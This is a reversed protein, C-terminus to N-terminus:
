EEQTSMKPVEIDDVTMGVIHCFAYLYLPRMDMRGREVANVYTRSVGMKDALEAQTLGANIRAAEMTIKAM